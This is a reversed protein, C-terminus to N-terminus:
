ALTPKGSVKIDLDAMLVGNLKYTHSLGTILGAFSWKVSPTAPISLQYNATVRAELTTILGLHTADAPDFIIPVKVDGGEMLGGIFTKYANANNHVTTDITDVKQAPGSIDMLNAITTFVEPSAGDGKKLLAGFAAQKLAM